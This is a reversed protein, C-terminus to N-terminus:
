QRGERASRHYGIDTASIEKGRTTGANGPYTHLPLSKKLILAQFKGWLYSFINPSKPDPIRNYVPPLSRLYAIVANLDDDKLGAFAAWPMPYPIMRSGDRRIGKTVFTKIQDDTWNGLGTEKDSTLNYSVVDDFPYLDWRQGGAFQLEEIMSGDDRIPTHCYGCGLTAVLYKGRAVPQEKAVSDQIAYFSRIEQANMEWAPKRELSVVFNALDWM